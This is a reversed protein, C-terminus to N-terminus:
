QQFLFKIQTEVDSVSEEDSGIVHTFYSDYEPSGYNDFSVESNSSVQFYTLTLIVEVGDDPVFAFYVYNGNEDLVKIQGIKEETPETIETTYSTSQVFAKVSNFDFANERKVYPLYVTEFLASMEITNTTDSNKPTEELKPTEEPKEVESQENNPPLSTSNDDSSCASIGITLSFSIIAFSLKKLCLLKKM